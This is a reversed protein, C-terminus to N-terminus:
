RTSRRLLVVVRARGRGDGVIPVMSQQYGPVRVLLEGGGSPIGILRYPGLELMTVTSNRALNGDFMRREEGWRMVMEVPGDYRLGDEDVLEVDLTGVDELRVSASSTEGEKVILHAPTAREASRYAGWRIEVSYSGPAVSEWMVTSQHELPLRQSRVGGGNGAPGPVLRIEAGGWAAPRGHSERWCQVAEASVESSDITLVVTGGAQGALREVLVRSARFDPGFVAPALQLAVGSYSPLTCFVNLLGAQRGVKRLLWVSVFERGDNALGARPVLRNSGALALGGRGLLEFGSGELGGLSQRVGPLLDRPIRLPDGSRDRILLVIAYLPEVPIEVVADNTTAVIGVPASSVFGDGAAFVEYGEGPRLEGWQFRGEADTDLRHFIPGDEVLRMASLLDARASDSKRCIVVTGRVGLRNGFSDVLQGRLIGSRELRVLVRGSEVPFTSLPRQVGASGPARVLIESDGPVPAGLDLIGTAGTSGLFAFSRTERDMCWLRAGPCPGGDAASVEFTLLAQGSDVAPLAWAGSPAMSTANVPEYEPALRPLPVPTIHQGEFPANPRQLPPRVLLSVPYLLLLTLVVAGTVRAVTREGM